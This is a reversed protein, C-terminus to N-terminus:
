IAVKAKIHPWPDYGDLSIDSAEFEDITLRDANLRVTPLKRPERELQLKAADIHNQYLHLDGVTHVFDGVGLGCCQAVMHTLLAYSAINFPMGLFADCSRQYLHCSLKGKSVYFQFLVHCPPLAMKPLAAVNWASVILRRSYPDAKIASIVKGLQDIREGGPGEWARWQVGYIPGLDGAPDAWENWISVGVKNLHAINSQGRIFWLLEHLVSAFHIKKTTVLPFGESLDFRIQHGFVSLTGVGTRDLREEGRELLLKLLDHYTKM